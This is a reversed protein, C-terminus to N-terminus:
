FGLIKKSLKRWKKSKKNPCTSNKQVSSSIGKEPCVTNSSAGWLYVHLGKGFRGFKGFFTGQSTHVITIPYIMMKMMM